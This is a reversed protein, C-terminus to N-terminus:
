SRRLGLRPLIRVKGGSKLVTKRFLASAMRIALWVWLAQYLLALLHPWIADSQVAHAAMALPSSFPFLYALWVLPDSFSGGIVMGALIMMMLQGLTVPMSITQIEKVNSAQAGIALFLTGLLLFNMTYYLLCLVVFAPWGVAPATPVSVFNQVAQVFLYGLGLMTGWLALGLLSVALTALLKGIFIADLPVAAALVEIIKNSKEEVFNSVLVTALMLTVTFILLQVGRAMLHRASRLNGASQGTEIREMRVLPPAGGREAFAANARAREILLRLRSGTGSEVGPPGALVPRELTGTLVASYGAEQDALLARAQAEPDEAPEIFQLAPFTMRSTAATLEAHATRLADASARDTAVAVTVQLAERDARGVVTSTLIVVGFFFVPALMFIIFARSYVTAHFDRRAIVWAKEILDNV